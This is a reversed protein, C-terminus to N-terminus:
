PARRDRLLDTLAPVAAAGVSGLADSAAEDIYSGEDYLLSILIPIVRLDGARGRRGLAAVIAQRQQADGSGLAHTLMDLPENSFAEM